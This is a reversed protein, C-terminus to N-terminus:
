LFKVKCLVLRPLRGNKKWFVKVKQVNPFFVNEIFDVKEAFDDLFIQPLRRSLRTEGEIKRGASRRRSIKGASSRGARTSRKRGAAPRKLPRGFIGLCKSFQFGSKQLESRSLYPGTSKADFLRRTQKSTSLRHFTPANQLRLAPLAAQM